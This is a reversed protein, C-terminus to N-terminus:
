PLLRDDKPFNLDSGNEDSASELRGKLRSAIQLCVTVYAGQPPEQRAPEHRFVFDTVNFQMCARAIPRDSFKRLSPSHAFLNRVTRIKELDEFTPEGYLGLVLGFRSRAGLDALPGKQQFSFLWKRLSKGTKTDFPVFRSVIAAELAREILSAGITAIAYDSGLHRNEILRLLGRIRSDDPIEKALAKLTAFIESPSAM